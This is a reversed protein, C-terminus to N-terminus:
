WSAKLVSLPLTEYLPAEDASAVPRSWRIGHVECPLRDRPLVIRSRTVQSSVRGGDYQESIQLRLEKIWDPRPGPVANVIRCADTAAENKMGDLEFSRSSTRRYEALVADKFVVWNMSDPDGAADLKRVNLSAVLLQMEYWQRHTIPAPADPGSHAAQATAPAGAQQHSPEIRVRGASGGNCAVCALVGWVVVLIPSRWEM